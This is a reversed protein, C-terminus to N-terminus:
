SVGLKSPQALEALKSAVANEDFAVREVRIGRPAITIVSPDDTKCRVIVSKNNILLQIDLRNSDSTYMINSIDSNQNVGIIAKNGIISNAKHVARDVLSSFKDRIDSNPVTSSNTVIDSATNNIQETPIENLNVGVGRLIDKGQYQQVRANGIKGAKAMEILEPYTVETNGGGSNSLVVKEVKRGNKIVKTIMLQEMADAANTGKKIKGLQETNKMDGDEYKVPLEDLSIGKGRLLVDDKYIQGTCNTVQDNGVLYYVQEKTFRGSKGTELSQLHYGVVSKGSMYRGVIQYETKKAAM